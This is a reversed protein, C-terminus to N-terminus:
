RSRWFSYFYLPLFPMQIHEMSCPHAGNATLFQSFKLLCPGPSFRTSTKGKPGATLFRGQLALSVRKIGPGPRDWTSGLLQAQSACSRLKLKPVWAGCSGFDVHGLAAPGCCSCGGCHSAQVQGCSTLQRSEVVLSLGPLLSSGACHPFFFFFFFFWASYSMTLRHHSSTVSVFPLSPMSWTGLSAPALSCTTEPCPHDLTWHCLASFAELITGASQMCVQAAFKVGWKLM